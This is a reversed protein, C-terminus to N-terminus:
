YALTARAVLTGRRTLDVASPRAATRILLTATDGNSAARGLPQLKGAVIASVDLPGDARDALVYLWSGDRAYLVKATLAGGAATTTMAAHLFHSHVLTTVALDDALLRTRAAGLEYWSTALALLFAAALAFGGFSGFRPVAARARSGFRKGLAASPRALPLAGALAAATEEAEGLRRLCAACAAAHADVEVRREDDLLGLAYLEADDGIHANM